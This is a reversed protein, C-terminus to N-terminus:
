LRMTGDRYNPPTGTYSTGSYWSLQPTETITATNEWIYVVNQRSNPLRGNQKPILTIQGVGLKIASIDRGLQSLIDEECIYRNVYRLLNGEFEEIRATNTVTTNTWNVVTLDPTFAKMVRYLNKGDEAIVTDESYLEYAPDFFPVYVESEVQSPLYQQTEVFIGNEKYIYFEFLPHVNSTATYSIVKSGERFFTRDGEFFRFMRTPAIVTKLALQTVLEDYQTTNIYLPFILGENVLDQANTSDPTFYQAAIFFEPAANVNKRYELYTGAPFRPKYKYIPLGNTGNQVVIEKIIGDTVLSDFYVSTTLGEPNYTFAQVVYAYKNVVGFQVDVYNYYPDAVPDPGSGIQPTYVWTGAAYSTGAILAQPVVAGGLKFATQAGTLDNTPSELTFNQNVVWVFSGPRMSLPILSTPDPVFQKDGPNYDYEIIEPDYIGTSTTEQYSTGVTSESFPSFTKAPSVKNKTILDPIDLSTAIVLNENIVHLAGDGGVAPDWYCVQGQTYSGAILPIIQELRLNGYITQDKKAISYPTFDAQVPYFVKTPLTVEVLDDKTLLSGTPEFSYVKTYTAAAPELLPPTNFAESVEIHPDVFRTNAPFTSYFAADVDSVTPDTTSPFVAGPTLIEFLRDRFNLSSDKLNVGFSGNADVEVTLNYQVQSLTIPYLHGQNEVPVSYNVVNQGRELQAENLEVGGPGLVFFSVQGNPRLYDALYNYTGQNPRNPQVSTQTGAGYFDTFFDQWDESSVPNRRRILTFFREQVEQYTEVDSGGTAPKPNTATLGDVNIASTGTISNAPSNYIAGVYQSAVTINATDEGPPISIERDTIFDFTEGGTLNPDTTFTTGAPIVTVVDSPPVTVTLRAVAPTGLRRMAGLFPGLWEVLISQPLQNAWFLFEGQAFAQGELLAALPNGSSFDNLTQGSAEYVKQSAVQVLEAENRPDISVSPLPAYRAM